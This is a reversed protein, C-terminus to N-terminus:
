DFLKANKQGFLREQLMEFQIRKPGYYQQIALWDSWTGRSVVREIVYRVKNDWDIADYDTDWFIARSLQMAAGNQVQKDTM